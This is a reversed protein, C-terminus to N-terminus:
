RNTQADLHRGDGHLWEAHPFRERNYGVVYPVVDLVSRINHEIVFQELFARYTRTSELTSGPQTAETWLSGDYFRSFVESHDALM